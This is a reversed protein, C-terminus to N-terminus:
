LDPGHVRGRPHPAPGDIVGGRSQASAVLTEMVWGLIRRLRREELPSLWHLAAVFMAGLDLIGENTAEPQSPSMELCHRELADYIFRVGEPTLAEFVIDERMGRWLEPPERIFNPDCTGRAVAWRMLADNYAELRGEEDEPQPHTRFAVKQAEARATFIDAAAILRLGVCVPEEPKGDWADAFCDVPVLLTRAPAKTAAAQLESYTSM